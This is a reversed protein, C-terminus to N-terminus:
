GAEDVAVAEGTDLDLSDPRVSDAVTIGLQEALALAMETAPERTM